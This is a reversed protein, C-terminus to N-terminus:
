IKRMRHIKRKIRETSILGIAPLTVNVKVDETVLGEELKSPNSVDIKLPNRMPPTIAECGKIIIRDVIFPLKPRRYVYTKIVKDGTRTANIKDVGNFIDLLFGLM